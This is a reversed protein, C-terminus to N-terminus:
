PSQPTSKWRSSERATFRFRQLAWGTFKQIDLLSSGTRRLRQIAEINLPNLKENRARKPIEITAKESPGPGAAKGLPPKKRVEKTVTRTMSAGGFRGYQVSQEQFDCSAVGDSDTTASLCKPIPENDFTFGVSAAPVPRGASTVKVQLVASPSSVTSNNGPSLLSIDLPTFEECQTVFCARISGPGSIPPQSLEFFPTEIL